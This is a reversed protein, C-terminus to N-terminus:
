DKYIVAGGPVENYYLVDYHIGLKQLIEEKFRIKGEQDTEGIAWRFGDEILIKGGPKLVRLMEKISMEYIDKDEPKFYAHVATTDILLDFFNDKVPQLDYAFALILNEDHNKQAERITEDSIDPYARRMAGFTQEEEAEKFEPRDLSPNFSFIDTSIGEVFASKSLGGLGSGLDGVVKNEMEKALDIDNAELVEHDHITRFTDATGSLVREEYQRLQDKSISPAERRQFLRFSWGPKVKQNTKHFHLKSEQSRDKVKDM